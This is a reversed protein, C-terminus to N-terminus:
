MSCGTRVSALNYADVLLNIKPLDGHKLLSTLLRELSPRNKRPNLGVKRLIDAFYLVEPMKRIDNADKFKARAALAERLIESRLNPGDATISVGRIIVVSSRLGLQLCDKDVLFKM